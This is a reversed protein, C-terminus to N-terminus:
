CRSMSRPANCCTRKTGNPSSLSAAWAWAPIKSNTPQLSTISLRPRMLPPIRRIRTPNLLFQYLWGPQVREGQHFLPPPLAAYGDPGKGSEDDYRMLPQVDGYVKPDYESLYKKLQMAFIGDWTDGRVTMAQPFFPIGFSPNAPLTHTNGEADKFTVARSPRLSPGMNGEADNFSTGLVGFVRLSDPNPQNAAWANHEPYPHDKPDGQEAGAFATHALMLRDLVAKKKTLPVQKTNGEKDTVEVMITKGEADHVIDNTLALDYVGPRILHCSSCNYKEIVARGRAEAQREPSYQPLFKPPIPEAIMGLVFTMVADRAVAEERDRRIQYAEDTEDPLRRSRSFKFQPMRARDNWDRVRNYDFTRPSM